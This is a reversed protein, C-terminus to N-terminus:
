HLLKYVIKLTSFSTYSMLISYELHKASLYALISTSAIEYKDNQNFNLLRFTIACQPVHPSFPVRLCHCNFYLKTFCNFFSHNYQSGSNAYM